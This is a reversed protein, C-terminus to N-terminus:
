TTIHSQPRQFYLFVGMEGGHDTFELFLNQVGLQQVAFLLENLDYSNMQMEPDQALPEPDPTQREEDQAFPILSRLGRPKPASAPPEPPASSPARGWTDAYFQKAYTLQIAAVGGPTLRQLLHRFLERGRVPEIHQFVIASHILDFSGTVKSLSDDSTALTVNQLGREECVRRAESLMGESVDIGVCEPVLEAFSVLLRGVGCGFDLMRRPHFDDRLVRKAVITLVHRVHSRGSAFFTQRAEETINENRYRPDTIVGFYPDQEGWRKWALDTSMHAEVPGNGVCFRPTLARVSGPDFTWDDVDTRLNPNYFPDTLPLIQSWRSLFHIQDATEAMGSRSVSEHHALRAGACVVSSLGRDRLRLCYDVDNFVLAFREDFGGVREFDARRTLLCAGTVASQERDVAIWPEVQHEDVRCYRFVHRCKPFAGGHIIIGAHQVRGDPYSLVAGVAGVGDLRATRVMGALWGPRLPVVDDNLFLLFDASSGRVAQNNLAAWNFAEDSWLVRVPWRSLFAAAQDLSAVNNVVVVVEVSLVSSSEILLADLCTSVLQLDALRTPIVVRISTTRESEPLNTAETPAPAVTGRNSHYLVQPVHAVVRSRLAALQLTQEIPKSQRLADVLLTRRFAWPRLLAPAVRYLVPSWGPKFLPDRGNPGTFSEDSYLLDLAPMQAACQLLWGAAGPELSDGAALWVVFEARDSELTELLAPAGGRNAADWCVVASRCHRQAEISARTRWLDEESRRETVDLVVLPPFLADGRAPRAPAVLRKHLAFVTAQNTRSFSVCLTVSRNAHDDIRIALTSPGPSVGRIDVVFSFGCPM